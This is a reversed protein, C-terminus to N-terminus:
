ELVEAIYARPEPKGADKEESSFSPDREETALLALDQAERADAEDALQEWTEDPNSSGTRDPFVVSLTYYVVCGLAYTLIFSIFFLRKGLLSIGLDSTSIQAVFGPLCPILVVITTVPARWNWGKNYWYRGNPDSTYLQTVDINGKKLFYYDVMIISAIPALWYGYGSLFTIFAKASVLIKWPVVCIGLVTCLFQGRRITFYNPFLATMDSGFPLSNTALNVGIYALAFVSAALFIGFRAGHNDPYQDLMWDLQDWLNWLVAGTLKKSASAVLIGYLCPLASAIPYGILTTWMADGPKTAYRAMDGQNVTLSSAAGLGANFAQLVLWAKSTTSMAKEPFQTFQAGKAKIMWWILVGHFGIFVLVSKINYFWKLDRAHVVSMSLFVLMFIAVSLVYQSHFCVFKTSRHGEAPIDERVRIANLFSKPSRFAALSSM